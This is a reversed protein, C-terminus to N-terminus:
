IWEESLVDGDIKVTIQKIPVKREADSAANKVLSLIGNCCPVEMKMVTITNVKAEDILVRLKELYEDQGSDLKPCLIILKKGKLFRSHFNPTTFPV